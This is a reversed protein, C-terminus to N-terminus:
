SFSKQFKPDIKYLSHRPLVMGERGNKENQLENIKLVKDNESGVITFIFKLRM